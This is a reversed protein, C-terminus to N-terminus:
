AQVLDVVKACIERFIPCSPTARYRQLLTEGEATSKASDMLKVFEGDIPIRGLFRCGEGKGELRKDEQQCFAEGGGSGFIPTIDGCHPCLYGSM